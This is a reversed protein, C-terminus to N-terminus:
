YSIRNRVSLCYVYSTFEKNIVGARFDQNMYRLM